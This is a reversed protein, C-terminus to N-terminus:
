GRSEGALLSDAGLWQRLVGLQLVLL